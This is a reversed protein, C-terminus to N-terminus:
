SNVNFIAAMAEVFLILRLKFPYDGREDTDFTDDEAIDVTIAHFVGRNM